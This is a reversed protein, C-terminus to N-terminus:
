VALEQADLAAVAEIEVIMGIAQLRGQHALVALQFLDGPALRQCHHRLRKGLIQGIAAREAHDAGVVGGVFLIEVQLFERAFHQSRIMDVMVARAIHYRQEVREALSPLPLQRGHGVQVFTLGEQHQAGVQRQLM